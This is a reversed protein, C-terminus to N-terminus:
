DAFPRTGRVVYQRPLAEEMIQTDFGAAKLTTAVAEALIRYEVPPGTPSDETFDVVYFSGGRKLGALVKRAYDVRNPIHHWTDVIMVRDMADAEFQPDSPAVQKVQVNSLGEKQVRDQMYAVLKPEIDLAFVHGEAGVAPSLYPLFYGTGAGIDAVSMGPKLALMAVMEAPKQWAAREPADFRKAWFEPDDFSHKMHKGHGQGKGHHASHGKGHHAGHGKGHGHHGSESKSTPTSACAMAGLCLLPLM